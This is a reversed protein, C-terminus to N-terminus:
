MQEAPIEVLLGDWEERVDLQCCLRSNDRVELAGELMFTEDESPPPLKGQWVPDIYAHCTACSCSGGCDGLIGPILNDVAVRMLTKGLPADVVHVTGSAETFTIKPM